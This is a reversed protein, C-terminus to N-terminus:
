RRISNTAKKKKNVYTHPKRTFVFHGLKLGVNFKDISLTRFINGKHIKIQTNIFCKPINNSKNFFIYNINNLKNFKILFIKRLMSTNYKVVM